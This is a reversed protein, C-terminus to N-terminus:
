KKVKFEFLLDDYIGNLFIKFFKKFPIFKKWSNTYIFDVKTLELEKLEYEELLEKNFSTETFNTKHQLDTFNAYSTAHPVIVIIKANDKSIRIVEKLVGIPDQVHELIMKMLTEDFLSKKFPYPIKNLDHKIDKKVDILDLNVWGKKYDNGCGLNLKKMKKNM